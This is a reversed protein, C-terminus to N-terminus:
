LRKRKYFVVLLASLLLAILAIGTTAAEKTNDQTTAAATGPMGFGMGGGMGDPPNGGGFFGQGDPMQGNPPAMGGFMGGNADAGPAQGGQAPIGGGNAGNAGAGPAQGGQAPIGGGNAGNADAGPAQEGQAPIGGGNAGANPETTVAAALVTGSSAAGNWGVANANGAAANQQQPQNGGRGRGGEMMGNGMNGMGMGGNGGRGGMGGGGFDGGSGSGDGSSPSTGALQAAVAATQQQNYAILQQIGQEYEEYTVFATPDAKVHESILQQLEAIRAQFTEDKLYGDLMGAIIEHYQEKYEDVALLKAILPRDALTGSTPEDILVTSSASGGAANGGANADRNPMAGGGEAANGGANAGGGAANGGANAGGEAANGGAPADGNPMGGSANPGGNAANGGGNSGTNAGSNAANGGGNNDANAGNAANGDAMDMGRMGMGMGGGMGSMGGFAMNYDWPLVNFIGNDDYLYYNHKRQSAYSDGNGGVANLAIFGLAGQVNLVSEIDTGNNLEDLMALLGQSNGKDSKLELGTYAEITELWNLESGNGGTGKYLAGYSNGFNRDLYTEGIQEIALYLGRLEGNVYLNVFSYKPTPLGMSEALEYSLFERMYTADSFNNNLNIKSIGQLTQGIYEDFSLKFSYRDSDTMRVVSSLSSNGKTRIGINNFTQGNYDVSAQHMEEASANDLMDQFQEPEITVKVDIVKDKPFVTEDLKQEDASVGAGSAITGAGATGLLADEISCGALSIALLLSCLSLLLAKARATM